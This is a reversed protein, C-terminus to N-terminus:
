MVGMQAIVASRTGDESAQIKSTAQRTRQIDRSVEELVSLALDIRLGADRESHEAANQDARANLSDRRYQGEAIMAGGSTAIAGAHVARAGTAISAFTQATGFGGTAAGLLAGAGALLTCIKPDLGLRAGITGTTTLGAAGLALIAPAGAGGTGVIVAAAAVASAIAAVDGGLVEKIDGWFGASDEAEQARRIATELEARAREILTNAHEIDAMAQNSSQNLSKMVLALLTAGLDNTLFSVDPPGPTPDSDVAIPSARNTVAEM